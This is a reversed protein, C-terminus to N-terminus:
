YGRVSNIIKQSEAENPPPPTAPGGTLDTNVLLFSYTDPGELMLVSVKGQSAMCANGTTTITADVQVAKIPKGETTKASVQKPPGVQASPQASGYFEEGLAKAMNAAAEALNSKKVTGGGMGGRSYRKGECTYSALTAPSSLVVDPQTKSTVTGGPSPTWAPPVEYILSAKENKIVSWGANQPELQATGQSATTTEPTSTAPQNQAQPEDSSRNVLVITVVAGIIVVLAAIAFIVVLRGRKRPPQSGPQPFYGLGQYQQHGWNQQPQGNGPYM